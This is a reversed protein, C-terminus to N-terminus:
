RLQQGRPRADLWALPGKGRAPRPGGAV